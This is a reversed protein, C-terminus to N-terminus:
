GAAGPALNAVLGAASDDLFQTSDPIQGPRYVGICAVGDAAGTLILHGAGNTQFSLGEDGSFGFIVGSGDQFTVVYRFDFLGARYFQASAIASEPEFGTSFNFYPTYGHHVNIASM